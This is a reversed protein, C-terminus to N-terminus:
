KEENKLNKGLKEKPQPTCTQSNEDSPASSPSKLNRFCEEIERPKERKRATKM